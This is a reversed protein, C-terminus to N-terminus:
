ALPQDVFDPFEGGKARREQEAAIAVAQEKTLVGNLVIEGVIRFNDGDTPVNEESDFRLQSFKGSFFVSALRVWRHGVVDQFDDKSVEQYVVMPRCTAEDTVFDVIRYVGGKEHRWYIEM